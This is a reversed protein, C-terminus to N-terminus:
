AFLSTNFPTTNFRGGFALRADSPAALDDTLRIVQRPPIPAEGIPAAEALRAAPRLTLQQETLEIRERVHPITLEVRPRVGAACGHALAWELEHVFAALDGAFAAPVRDAPIRLAIAAPMSEQWELDIDAAPAAAVPDALDRLAALEPWAALLDGLMPRALVDYRWQNEGPALTTMGLDRRAISFRAGIRDFGGFAANPADYGFPNCLLVPASQPVGDLLPALGHRLTLTAGPPVVGVFILRLGSAIDVLMPVKAPRDVPRLRVEPVAPDLGANRLVVRQDPTIGIFNASAPIAPNDHLEVRIAAREGGADAFFEGVAVRGGPLWAIRPAEEAQYVLAVLRLVAAATTLGDRHIAIFEVLRRRFADAVERRAPPFGFLAGLQGLESAHASAEDTWGQAQGHWRSRLLRTLGYEVGGDAPGGSFVHAVRGFLAGVNAGDQLLLPLAALMRRKRQDRNM